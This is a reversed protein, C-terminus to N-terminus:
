FVQRGFHNRFCKQFFKSFNINIISGIRYWIGKLSENTIIHGSFLQLEIFSDGKSMISVKIDIVPNTENLVVFDVNRCDWWECVKHTSQDAASSVILIM